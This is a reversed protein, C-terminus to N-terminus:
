VNQGEKLANQVGSLLSVAKRFEEDTLKTDRYYTLSLYGYVAELDAVLKSNAM